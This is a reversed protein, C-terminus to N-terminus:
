GSLPRWSSREDNRRSTQTTPRAGDRGARDARQGPVGMAASVLIGGLIPGAAAALGVIGGWVGVARARRDPDDYAAGCCPWHRRCRWLRGMGQVVRAAVLVGVGPALGCAVSSLVFVGLG